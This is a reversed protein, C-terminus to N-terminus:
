RPSLKASLQSSKVSFVFIVSKCDHFEVYFIKVLIKFTLFTPYVIFHAVSRKDEAPQTQHGFLQKSKPIKADVCGLHLIQFSEEEALQLFCNSACHPRPAM